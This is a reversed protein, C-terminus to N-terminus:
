NREGARLLKILLMELVVEPRTFTKIELDAKHLIQFIKNFTEQTVNPLYKSLIRFTSDWMKPPRKGKSKWLEYFQRYHRNLAGLILPPMEVASKGELLTKLIRFAKTKKGAILADVLNFPIYERTIGVSAMVDKDEIIKRGSLALKELEMTLLGIDPGVAEILYEAASESLKIGKKVAAQKLWAPVEREKIELFYISGYFDLGKKPEKLSLILMCTTDSPNKFYATLAEIAPMSFQHFDKLVVLRRQALFPLTLAADFIEQPNSSPYFVDYNFDRQHSPIIVNVAESLAETLFFNEKSWLFYLPRPLGKQIEKNLRSDLM